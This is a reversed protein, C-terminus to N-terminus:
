VGRWWFSVERTQGGWCSGLQQQQMHLSATHSSHQQSHSSARAPPHPQMSIHSSATCMLLLLTLGGPAASPMSPRHTCRALNPCLPHCHQILWGPGSQEAEETARKNETNVGRERKRSSSTGRWDFLARLSAQQTWPGVGATM